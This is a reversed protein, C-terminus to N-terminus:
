PVTALATDCQVSLVAAAQSLRRMFECTLVVGKRVSVTAMTATSTVLWHVPDPDGVVGVGDDATDPTVSLGDFVATPLPTCPMTVSDPAAAAPPALMVSDLLLVATAVTGVGTTTCAPADVAANMTVVVVAPAAVMVADSFPALWDDVSVTVEEADSEDIETLEALTTPPLAASPVTVKLASAPGPPATTVSELASGTRTGDVTVTGPPELLADNAIAVRATPPVIAAV